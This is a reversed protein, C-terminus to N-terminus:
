GLTQQSDSPGDFPLRISVTTGKGPTSDLTATGGHARVMAEVISLGLGSGGSHRSRSPDARYFREFARTAAEHAMGPGEDRVTLMAWGDDRATTVTVPTGPPTHVRANTLLNAIVQRLRAQDGRLVLPEGIEATVPRGPDVATADAVADRALAALDVEALELPRDQDARALTLLDEVMSGMRVAEAETRAMADDLSDPTGLGGARYLESYGRITAVPTRLEHSADAVFDRLRAQARQQEDFSSEIRAMMVNLAAGLEGAETRPDADPVRHSLDGEAITTAAHTMAKVPRIGLRIVWWALAALAALIVLVGLTEVRILDTVAAEVSDLPMALTIVTDSPGDRYSLVRYAASEDHGDVTFPQRTPANALAQEADIEPPHADSGGLNPTLVVAVEDGEVRGVFLSSLSSPGPEDHGAQSAGSDPPTRSRGLDDADRIPAIAQQLQTDVQRLLNRETIQTIAVTVVGLVVAIVAIGALLRARLSM